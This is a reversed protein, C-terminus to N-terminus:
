VSLRPTLLGGDVPVVGGSVDSADDSLLVAIARGFEELRGVRGFHAAGTVLAIEGELQGAMAFGGSGRPAKAKIQPDM